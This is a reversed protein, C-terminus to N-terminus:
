KESEAQLKAAQAAGAKDGSASQTGTDGSKPKTLGMSCDGDFVVGEAITLRPTNINGFLRAPAILEVKEKATVNGEVRGQIIVIQGSIRARIEAGEGITLRGHCQIEGDVSGDIRAAGQLILQGSLRSGKHLAAVLGPEVVRVPEKAAGPASEPEPKPPNPVSAPPPPQTSQRPEPAAMPEEEPGKKGGINLDFWVM